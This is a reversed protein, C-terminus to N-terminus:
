IRKSEFDDVLDKIIKPDIYRKQWSLWSTETIIVRDLLTSGLVKINRCSRSPHKSPTNDRLANLLNEFEERGYIYRYFNWFIGKTTKQFCLEYVESDHSCITVVQMVSGFYSRMLGETKCYENGKICFYTCIAFFGFFLYEFM